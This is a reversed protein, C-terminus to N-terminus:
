KEIEVSLGKDLLTSAIPELKEYTGKKVISKGNYHTIMACQEAQYLNHNCYRMLMEIVYDFTNIEDNYLVIKHLKTETHQHKQKPSHKETM